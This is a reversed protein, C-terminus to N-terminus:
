TAEIVVSAFQTERHEGLGRAGLTLVAQRGGAGALRRHMRRDFCNHRRWQGPSINRRLDDPELADGSLHGRLIQRARAM